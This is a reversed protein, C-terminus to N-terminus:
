ESVEKFYNFGIEFTKKELIGDTIMDFLLTQIKGTIQAWGKPHITLQRSNNIMVMYDIDDNYYQKEYELCNYHPKWIAYTGSVRFGYKELVSYDLGEKLYIGTVREM